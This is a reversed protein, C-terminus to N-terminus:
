AGGASPTAARPPRPEPTATASIWRGPRQRADVGGRLLRTVLGRGGAPRGAPHGSPRDVWSGPQSEPQGGPQSEAPSVHARAEPDLVALDADYGPYLRGKAALGLLRAPQWCLLAALEELGIRGCAVGRWWLDALLGPPPGAGAVSVARVVGARVEEWCGDLAALPAAVAISGGGASAIAGGGASAIAGGAAGAIAGGGAGAVAADRAGAVADGAGAVAGGRAGAVAADRAGAVAGGRASAVAAGGAAGAIAGGGAGAVAADRAGAVAGGRAGAVTGGGARRAAAIAATVGGATAPALLARCGPAAAVTAAVRNLTNPREGLVVLTAGCEALLRCLGPLLDPATRRGRGLRTGPACYADADIAFAARGCGFVAEPLDPLQAPLDGLLPVAVADAALPPPEPLPAAPALNPVIVAAATAGAVPAGAGTDATASAGGASDAGAAATAPPDPLTPRLLVIPGPFVVQGTLDRTAGAAGGSGDPQPGGGPGPLRLEQVTGGDLVLDAVFRGDAHVILGQQLTVRVGGIIRRRPSTLHRGM